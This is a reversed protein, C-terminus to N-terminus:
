YSKICNLYFSKLIIRVRYFLTPKPIKKGDTGSIGKFVIPISFVYFKNGRKKWELIANALVNEFYILRADDLEKLKTILIDTYFSKSAILFQSIAYTNNLSIDGAIFPQKKNWIFKISSLLININSVILRGTIKIIYDSDKILKSNSLAHKIILMEGYGKGLSKDYNNGDFTIFELRESLIYSNFRESFNCCTNEVVVIKYPTRSLYFSLANEYQGQRIKTDQLITKTMGDPNVCATLLIVTNSIM